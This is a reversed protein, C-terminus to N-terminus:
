RELEALALKPHQWPLSCMFRLRDPYRGQQLAMEDNISRSAELSVRAPGFFVNPSTLTVIAIDVGAADMARIRAGYDFMGPLLTMFPAGDRHVASAGGRVKKVSYKGGHKRLLRVYEESLMHTHVDVVKLPFAAEHRRRLLRSRRVQGAGAADRGLQGRDRRAVRARAPLGGHRLARGAHPRVESGGDRQLHPGGGRALGQAARCPAEGRRRPEESRADLAHRRRFRRHLAAAARPEGTGLRAARL